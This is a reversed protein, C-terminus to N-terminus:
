RRANGNEGFEPGAFPCAKMLRKGWVPLNIM